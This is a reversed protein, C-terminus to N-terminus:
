QEVLYTIKYSKLYTNFNQLATIMFILRTNEQSDPIKLYFEYKNYAGENAIPTKVRFTPEKVKEGQVIKGHIKANEYGSTAKLEAEIKIWGTTNKELDISKIIYPSYGKIKLKQKYNSKAIVITKFDSEDTIIEDTDLLSMDLPSPDSNLYIRSYYTANMDRYHLVTTNYQGIQFLNVGILYLGLVYFLYKWKKLEIQHIFAGFALAFVPYSQVMARTSYTAGYKYDSWAVVIWINLLCFTIVSRKFPFKKLYLFGLVFFTYSSYLYVLWKWIWIISSVMSKSLVM